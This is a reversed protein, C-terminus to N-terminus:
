IYKYACMRVCLRVRMHVQGTSNKYTNPQPGAMAGSGGTKYKIKRIRAQMVFSDNYIGMHMYKVFRFTSMCMSLGTMCTIYEHAYTGHSPINVYVYLIGEYM